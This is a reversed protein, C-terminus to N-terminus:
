GVLSAVQQKEQGKNCCHELWLNKFCRLRQLWHDDSHDLLLLSGSSLGGEDAAGDKVATASLRAVHQAKGNAKNVTHKRSLVAFHEQKMQLCNIVNLMHTQTTISKCVRFSFCFPPLFICAKQALSMMYLQQEVTTVRSDM